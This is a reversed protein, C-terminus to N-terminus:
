PVIGIPDTYGDQPSPVTGLQTLAGTGSNIGYTTIEGSDGAM